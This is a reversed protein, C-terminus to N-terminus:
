SRSSSRGATVSTPIAVSRESLDPAGRSETSMVSLQLDSNSLRVLPQGAVVTAGDEVLIQEVRGGQMADLYVTKLPAVRARIPITDEFIGASVPALLLRDDAVTLSRGTPTLLAFGVGAFLLVALGLWTLSRGPWRKRALQRDMGGTDPLVTGGGAAVPRSIPRIRGM